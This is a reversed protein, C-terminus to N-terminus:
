ESNLIRAKRMELKVIQLAGIYSMRASDMAIRLEETEANQTEITFEAILREFREIVSELIENNSM